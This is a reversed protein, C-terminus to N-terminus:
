VDETVGELENQLLQRARRLRTRVTASPLSLIKGIEETTYGEYYHLYLTVRYHVPLSMVSDYLDSHQPEAFPTSPIHDDLSERRHWASRLVKKCENVTVRVLWNRLHDDSQFAKKQTLLALFVNQCIDEADTRNKLYNLAIRFVTDIYKNVLCTYQENTFM